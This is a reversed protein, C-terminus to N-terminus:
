GAADQAQWEALLADDLRDCYVTIAQELFPPLEPHFKEFTAIFDPHQNYHHGLARLVEPTPEYFYRMHDHWRALVAQVEDSAPSAGSTMLAAIEQYNAGGEAQIQQKKEASYSEWRAVSEDVSERGYLARAEETYRQQTAENFGDFFHEQSIAVEGALHMITSDVTQRLKQLRAIKRELVARHERLASVLEFDPADLVDKIQLLGMDMERYFLIQQLRLLSEDGYYRYGNDGVCTPELLKIEDYYHLTRVSVGAMDALQKVTYM